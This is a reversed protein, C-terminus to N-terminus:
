VGPLSPPKEYLADQSAQELEAAKAERAPVDCRAYAPDAPFPPADFFTSESIRTGTRITPPWVKPLGWAVRDITAADTSFGRRHMEGSVLCGAVQVRELILEWDERVTTNGAHVNPSADDAPTVKDLLGQFWSWRGRTDGALWILYAALESPLDVRDLLRLLRDFRVKTARLALLAPRGRSPDRRHLRRMNELQEALAARLATRIRADRAELRGRREQWALAVTAGALLITGVATAVIAFDSLNVM